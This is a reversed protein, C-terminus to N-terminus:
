SAKKRPKLKEELMELERRKRFNERCGECLSLSKKSFDDILPCDEFCDFTM